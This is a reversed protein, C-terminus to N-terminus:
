INAISDRYCQVIESYGEAQATAIATNYGEIAEYEDIILSNLVSAIGVDAGPTIPTPEHRTDEIAVINGVVYGDSDVTVRYESNDSLNLVKWTSEDIPELWMYTVGDFIFQTGPTIVVSDSIDCTNVVANYEPYNEQLLRTVKNRAHSESIARVRTWNDQGERLSFNVVYHRM